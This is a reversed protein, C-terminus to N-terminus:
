SNVYPEPRGPGLAYLMPVSVSVSGQAKSGLILLKGKVLRPEGSGKLSSEHCGM